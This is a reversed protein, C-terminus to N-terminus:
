YILKLELRRQNDALEELTIEEREKPKRSVEYMLPGEYGYQELLNMVAKWDTVGDGPLRHREDVFDYDSIHLTRVKLGGKLVNELFVPNTEILSHNTDFCLTANIGSLLALMEGSTNCLCTRPLNEVALIVGLEGCLKALIIINERSKKVRFPREDDTIPESSPHLVITKIGNEAAKRILYQHKEMTLERDADVPSSIDLKQSFPLHASWLEVYNKAYLPFNDDHLFLEVCDINNKACQEFKEPTLEGLFSTSIGKKMKM